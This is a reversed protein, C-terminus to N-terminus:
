KNFPWIGGPQQGRLVPAKAEPLPPRSRSPEAPASGVISDSPAAPANVTAPRGSRHIQEVFGAHPRDIVFARGPDQPRSKSRIVVFLEQDDDVAALPATPVAGAIAADFGTPVSNGTPVVPSAANLSRAAPAAAAIATVPQQPAPILRQLGVQNLQWHITPLSAYIGENEAENAANCVGILSGDAAFM